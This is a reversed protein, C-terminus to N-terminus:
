PRSSQASGNWDLSAGSTLDACAAEVQKRMHDLRSQHPSRLLIKLQQRARWAEITGFETEAFFHSPDHSLVQTQTSLAQTVHQFSGAQGAGNLEGHLQLVAPRIRRHPHFAVTPNM